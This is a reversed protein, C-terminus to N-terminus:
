KVTGIEKAPNGGFIKGPPVNSVVVSGFAIVSDQGITVGKLVASGASIWVNNEIVIPAHKVLAGSEIRNKDVSHFDTDMFRVDALICNDGITISQFTAIRTGNVYTNRGIKLVSSSQSMFLDPNSDIICDDGLYIQSKAPGQVRADTMFSVRSGFHVTPMLGFSSKIVWMPRCILNARLWGLSWRLHLGPKAYTPHQPAPIFPIKKRM